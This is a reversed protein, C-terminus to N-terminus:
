SWSSVFFLKGDVASRTSIGPRFPDGYHVTDGCEVGFVGGGWMDSAHATLVAFGNQPLNMMAHRWRRLKSSRSGDRMHTSPPQVLIAWGAVYCNGVRGRLRALTAVPLVIAM